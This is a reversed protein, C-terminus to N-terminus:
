RAAARLLRELVPRGAHEVARLDDETPVREPNMHERLVPLQRPGLEVHFQFGYARGVRFAQRAYRESSGLLVAGDPLDFTDHHWHVVPLPDPAGALVPDTRGADTLEVTGAGVEGRPGRYVDAGLAAALLQAGLCVGLVPVDDDVCDKLLARVAPLHPHEDDDLAGMPGGMVVLGDQPGLDGVGPVADGDFPRVVRVQQDLTSAVDAIAAPGEFAVNQVCWWTTM